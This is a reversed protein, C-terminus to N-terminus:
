PPSALAADAARRGSPGLCPLGRVRLARKVMRRQAFRQVGHRQPGGRAEGRCRRAVAGPSEPEVSLAQREESLPPDRPDRGAIVLHRDNAVLITEEPHKFDFDIDPFLGRVAPQVGIWVAREPLPDPPGEIWEPRAGCMTEIVDALEVAAARTKPPANEFSVIPAPEVGAERDFLVLDNGYDKGSWSELVSRQWEETAAKMEAVREPHEGSVDNSEMPDDVLHYLEFRVDDDKEIRHLKWPWDNWAAHGELDSLDITPFEEVNKLIREPHPNPQGARKAEMLARIIRDSWTSQGGRYGHWFGMPPHETQSGDLVGSLDIGDLPPQSEDPEVGAISLLTPYLDSTSAPTEIVASEFRGPWELIAPVRLGGEYLSGKRARGGSSEAALGGNDSCYFLLTDEAIELDRLRERLRGLQEDLLTIERFYGPQKTEEDDYLTAGAPVEQPVEEHPDHPSPFWTVAFIPRDGSAHKELFDITADMTIVTGPGEMQVYEGNRSLYPDNDFFNLGSLWEDFGAGGPSTPSEPQVSGIHWKGFHGTVYGARRLSEAITIEDPRLYHGHNPVNGRFPHRGTMVSARTPSCVPASAYFRDFVIGAGAMADLHPTKVFPHGTFGADGYGQDDAMVLVIHPREAASLVGGVGLGGLAVTVLAFFRSVLSVAIRAIM